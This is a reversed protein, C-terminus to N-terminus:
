MLGNLGNGYMGLKSETEDEIKKLADNVAIIIMDELIEIDEKDELTEKNIKLSKLERKGTMTLDVWESRGEFITKDIEDQKKQIDGQLKKAQAMLNQMNM